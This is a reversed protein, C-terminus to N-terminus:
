MRRSPPGARWWSQRSSRPMFATVARRTPQGPGSLRARGQVDGGEDRVTAGEAFCAGVRDADGGNHAAFYAAVIAPLKVTM